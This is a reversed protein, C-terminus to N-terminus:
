RPLQGVVSGVLVASWIGGSVLGAVFVAIAAWMPALGRPAAVKHVVVSRGIVYVITGLFAWAWHFPRALGLRRLHQRDRYALVLLVVTLVVSLGMVAGFGPGYMSFPDFSLTSPDGGSQSLQESQRVDAILPSVHIPLLWVLAASLAPLLAVLWISPGYIPAGAPLPARGSGAPAGSVRPTWQAGDWFRHPAQGWPDPYWGPAAGSSM